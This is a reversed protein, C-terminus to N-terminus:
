CAAQRVARCGAAHRAGARARLRWGGLRLDPQQRPGLPHGAARGRPRVARGDGQEDDQGLGPRGDPRARRRASLGAVPVAGDAGRITSPWGFGLMRTPFGGVEVGDFRQVDIFTADLHGAYWGPASFTVTMALVFPPAALYTGPAMEVAFRRALGPTRLTAPGPEPERCADDHARDLGLDVTGCAAFLLVAMAFAAAISRQMGSRAALPRSRSRRRGACSSIRSSGAPHRPRPAARGRRRGRPGRRPDAARGHLRRRRQHRALGRLGRPRGLAGRRVGHGDVHRRRAWRLSRVHPGGRPDRLEPRDARRVRGGRVVRGRRRGRSPAARATALVLRRHPGSLARRDSEANPGILPNQGTLNLHDSIVM